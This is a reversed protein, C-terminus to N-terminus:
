LALRGFLTNALKGKIREYTHLISKRWVGQRSHQIFGSTLYTQCELHLLILYPNAGLFPCVLDGHVCDFTHDTLGYLSM